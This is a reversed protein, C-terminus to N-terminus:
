FCFVITKECYSFHKMMKKEFFSLVHLLLEVISNWIIKQFRKPKFLLGKTKEILFLQTSKPQWLLSIQFWAFNRQWTRVAQLIKFLDFLLSWLYQVKMKWQRAPNRRHRWIQTLILSFVKLIAVEMKSLNRVKSQSIDLVMQRVSTLSPENKQMKRAREDSSLKNKSHLQGKIVYSNLTTSSEFWVCPSRPVMQLKRIFTIRRAFERTTHGHRFITRCDTPRWFFVVFLRCAPKLFNSKYSALRVLNPHLLNHGETEGSQCLGSNYRNCCFRSHM